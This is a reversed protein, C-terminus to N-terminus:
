LDGPYNRELGHADIQGNVNLAKTGFEGLLRDREEKLAADERAPAVPEPPRRSTDNFGPKLEACSSM